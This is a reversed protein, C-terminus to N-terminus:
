DTSTICTTRNEKYIGRPIQYILNSAKFRGATYSQASKSNYENILASRANQNATIAVGKKEEDMTTNARLNDIADEKTQVSQCIGFFEQYRQIRSSASEISEQADVKGRIEATYYRWALGGLSLGVLFLIVLTAVGIGKLKNM